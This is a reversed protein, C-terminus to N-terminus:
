GGLRRFGFQPKLPVPEGDVELVPYALFNIPGSQPGPEVVLDRGRSFEVRNAPNHGFYYTAL